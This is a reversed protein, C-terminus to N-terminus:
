QTLARVEAASKVIVDLLMDGNVALLNYRGPKSGPMLKKILVREDDLTVVCLKHLLQDDPPSFLHDYYVLWNEFYSMSNGKIRVAVTDDNGGAPMPVYEEPPQGNEYYHAEWGAGVYGVVPVIPASDVHSPVDPDLVWPQVELVKAFRYLAKTTLVTGIELQSVHQQTSKALKALQPQSLSKALRAAKFADRDIMICAYKNHMIHTEVIETTSV